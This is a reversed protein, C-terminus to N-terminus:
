ADAVLSQYHRALREGQVIAGLEKEIHRRATVVM